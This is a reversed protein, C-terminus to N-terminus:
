EGRILNRCYKVSHNDAVCRLVAENDNNMIIMMGIFIFFSIIFLFRWMKVQEKLTLDEM